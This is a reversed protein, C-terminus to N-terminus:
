RPPRRSPAASQFLPSVHPEPSWEAEPGAPGPEEGAELAGCWGGVGHARVLVGDCGMRRSDGAEKQGQRIDAGGAGGGPELLAPVKQEAQHQGDAKSPHRVAFSDPRSTPANQAKTKRETNHFPRPNTLPIRGSEVKAWCSCTSAAGRCPHRAEQDGVAARSCHGPWWGPM